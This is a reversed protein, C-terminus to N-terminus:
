YAHYIRMPLLGLRAVEQSLESSPTQVGLALCSNWYYLELPHSSHHTAGVTYVQGLVVVEGFGVVVVLRMNLSVMVAVVMM